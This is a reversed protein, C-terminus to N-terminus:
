NPRLLGKSVMKKRLSEIANTHLRSIWSKNVKMRQALETMSSDKFYIEEIVRRYDPPLTTILELIARVIDSREYSDAGYLGHAGTSAENLAKLDSDLSILFAPILADITSQLKEIENDITKAHHRSPVIEDDAATCLLDNAAMHMRAKQSRPFYGMERLGDYIAGKIRYYSFTTFSIGRRADYREAAEVLGVYGYAILEEVDVSVAVEEAIEVALGQVYSSYQEILQDRRNVEPDIGQQLISV